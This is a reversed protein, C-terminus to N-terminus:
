MGKVREQDVRKARRHARLRGEIDEQNGRSVGKIGWRRGNVGWRCGMSAWQCWDIVGQFGKLKGVM